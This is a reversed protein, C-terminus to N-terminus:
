SIAPVFSDLSAFSTILTVFHVMRCDLDALFSAPRKRREISRKSLNDMMTFGFLFVSFGRLVSFVIVPGFVWVLILFIATSLVSYLVLKPEFASIIDATRM